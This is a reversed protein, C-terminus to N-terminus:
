NRENSKIETFFALEEKLNAQLNISGINIFIGAILTPDVFYNLLLNKIAFIDILMSNINNKQDNSLPYASKIVIQNELENKIQNIKEQPLVRLKQLFFDIIKAELNIDAFQKLLISTFKVGDNIAERQKKNIISAIRQQEKAQIKDTEKQLTIHLADIQRQKELQLEALLKLTKEQKEKEWEILRNEYKNKLEESAKKTEKAEDIIKQVAQNREFVIKKVPQFLLKKLIFVLVLFNLIELFFTTWSFEM